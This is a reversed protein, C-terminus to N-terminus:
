RKPNKPKKPSNKGAKEGAPSGPGKSGGKDGTSGTGDADGTGTSVLCYTLMGEAAVQDITAARQAHACAAPYKGENAFLSALALLSDVDRPTKELIQRYIAFARSTDGTSVAFRAIERQATPDDPLLKALKEAHEKARVFDPDDRSYILTLYRHATVDDPALKLARKFYDRAVLPEGNAYAMTGLRVIAPTFNPDYQLAQELAQQAREPQGRQEAIQAMNYRAQVNKPDLSLVNKSLVDWANDFDGVQRLAEATNVFGEVNRPDKKFLNNFAILAGNPDGAQLQATGLNRWPRAKDPGWFAANEWLSIESGWVFGRRLSLLSCVVILAIALRHLRRARVDRGAERARSILGYLCTAAVLALGLSPVYMRREVLLDKIPILSTTPALGLFFLFIGFTVLPETERLRWAAYLAGGITVLAVLFRVTFFGEVVPFDHDFTQGVPLLWLRLYHVVAYANTALTADVARDTDPNGPTGFVIARAVILGLGVVVPLGLGWKLKQFAGPAKQFALLWIGVMLVPFIIASEKTFVAWVLMLLSLAYAAAGLLWNKTGKLELVFLWCFLLAGTFMFLASLIDARGAVYAVPESVIPHLLFLGTSFVTTFIKERKSRGLRKLMWWIFVAWVAAMQIHNAINMFHMLEASVHGGALRIDNKYSQYLRWRFWNQQSYQSLYDETVLHKNDVILTVDDFHFGGFVAPLMVVVALISVIALPVIVLGALEDRTLTAVAAPAEPERKEPAPTVDPSKVSMGPRFDM